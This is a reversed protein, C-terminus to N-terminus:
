RELDFITVIMSSRAEARMASIWRVRIKRDDRFGHGNDQRRPHIAVPIRRQRREWLAIVEDPIEELDNGEAACDPSGVVATLTRFVRAIRKPLGSLFLRPLLLLM